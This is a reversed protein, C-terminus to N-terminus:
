NKVRFFYTRVQMTSNWLRSRVEITASARAPLAFIQCTIRLCKATGRDCDLTVVSEEQGGPGSSVTRAPIVKEIERRGREKKGDEALKPLSKQSLSPPSPSVAHRRAAVSDGFVGMGAGNGGASTLNLPNARVGPPLYCDGRGNRLLPHDTLYLLWKGQDKGNEVQPSFYTKHQVHLLNSKKM